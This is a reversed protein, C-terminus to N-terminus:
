QAVAFKGLLAAIEAHVQERRQEAAMVEAQRERLERSSSDVAATTQRAIETLRQQQVTDLSAIEAQREELWESHAQRERAWGTQLDTLATQGESLQTQLRLQEASAKQQLEELSSQVNAKQVELEAMDTTLGQLRDVIEVLEAFATVVGRAFRLKNAIQDISIPTNAM